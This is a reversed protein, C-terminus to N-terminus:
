AFNLSTRQIEGLFHINAVVDRVADVDAFNREIWAILQRENQILKM